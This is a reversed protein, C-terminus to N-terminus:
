GSVRPIISEAQMVAKNDEVVVPVFYVEPMWDLTQQLVEECRYEEATGQILSGLDEIQGTQEIVSQWSAKMGMGM